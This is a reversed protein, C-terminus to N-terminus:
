IVGWVKKLTSKVRELFSPKWSPIGITAIKSFRNIYGFGSKPKILIM